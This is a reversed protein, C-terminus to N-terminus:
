DRKLQLKIEKETKTYPGLSMPEMKNSTNLAKSFTQMQLSSSYNSAASKNGLGVAGDRSKARSNFKNNVFETKILDM